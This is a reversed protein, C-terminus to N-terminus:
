RRLELLDVCSLATEATILTMSLEAKAVLELPRVGSVYQAHTIRDMGAGALKAVTRLSASLAVGDLRGGHLILNRQRYLRHFAESVAGKISRLELSPRLLLKRIRMVAASDAARKMSALKGALIARAIWTSRERNTSCAQLANSFEAREKEASYSLATLEARPMSCSVLTALHDAASARDGPDALLGEIAAWGGAIAATPSSGELHALLEIAADVSPNVTDAFILNERHLARVKVGRPEASHPIPGKAGKIWFVPWPALLEGSGIAARASFRDSVAQVARAAGDLDRARVNLLLAGAARVRATEFGNGSLWTSVQSPMLWNGPLGGSMPPMKSFAFLAEFARPPNSTMQGHLEECLDNLTVAESGGLRRKILERLYANSFGADLMHAAIGRAFTEPALAGQASSVSRWREVYDREFLEALESVAYHSAGDVRPVDKLQERIFAKESERLAPDKGSRKVLGSCIRRVSAESLTGDRVARCAEHLERLGLVLGINWLSRHWPAESSLLELLRGVAVGDHANVSKFVAVVM